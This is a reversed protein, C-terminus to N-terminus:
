DSALLLEAARLGIAMCVASIPGAPITPIVSADAIRLKQYGHVILNEDVVGASPEHSMRCTGCAHFYTQATYRIYADLLSNPLSLDLYWLDNAKTMMAVAARAAQHGRTLLEKDRLDSLFNLDVEYAVRDKVLSSSDFIM